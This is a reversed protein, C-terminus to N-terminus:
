NALGPREVASMSATNRNAESVRMSAYYPLTSNAKPWHRYVFGAILSVCLLLFSPNNRWDNIATIKQGAIVIANYLAHCVIPIVLSRTQLYLISLTIAVVFAGLPESHCLAFAVAAAIIGRHLGWKHAWRHLILGRFIIEEIMPGYCVIMFAEAFSWFDFQFVYGWKPTLWSSIPNSGWALLLLYRIWHTLWATLSASIALPVTLSVLAWTHLKDPLPGFLWDGVINCSIFQWCIWVAVILYIATKFLAGDNRFLVTDPDISLSLPFLMVLTLCVCIALSRARLLEFPSPSNLLGVTSETRTERMSPQIPQSLAKSFEDIAIGRKRIELDAFELAEKRYDAAEITAMRLLQEDTLKSITYRLETPNCYRDVLPTTASLDSSNGSMTEVGSESQPGEDDVAADTFEAPFLGRKSIEAEAFELAEKRYDVADITVMRVLQGDTLRSITLRLEDDDLHM